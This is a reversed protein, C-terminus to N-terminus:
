RQWARAHAEQAADGAESLDDTMAYVASVLRKVTAAYFADFGSAGRRPGPAPKAQGARASRVSM